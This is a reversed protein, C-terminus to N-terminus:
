SENLAKRLADAADSTFRLSQQKQLLETLGPEFLPPQGRSLGEITGADFDFGVVEHGAEALCASVVTGLHWLGAVCIRM